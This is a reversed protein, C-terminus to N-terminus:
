KDLVASFDRDTLSEAVEYNRYLTLVHIYTHIYNGILVLVTNSGLRWKIRISVAICAGWIKLM